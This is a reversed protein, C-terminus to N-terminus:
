RCQHLYHSQLDDYGYDSLINTGCKKTFTTSTLFHYHGSNLGSYEFSLWQILDESSNVIRGGLSSFSNSFKVYAQKIFGDDCTGQQELWDITNGVLVVSGSVVFSASYIAGVGLLVSVGGDPSHSHRLMGEIFDGELSASYLGLEKTTVKCRASQDPEIKPFAVCGSLCFSAMLLFMFSKIINMM